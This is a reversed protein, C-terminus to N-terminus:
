NLWMRTGGEAYYILHYYGKHRFNGNAQYITFAKTDAASRILYIDLLESIQQALL